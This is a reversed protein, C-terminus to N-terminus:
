EENREKKNRKKQSVIHIQENPYIDILEENSFKGINFIANLRKKLNNIENNLNENFKRLKELEYNKRQYNNKFEDFANNKDTANGTKLINLLMIEIKDYYNSFEKNTNILSKEKRIINTSKKSILSIRNPLPRNITINLIEESIDKITTIENLNTESLHKLDSLTSLLEKISISM